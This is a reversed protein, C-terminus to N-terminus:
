SPSAAAAAAEFGVATYRAIATQRAEYWWERLELM